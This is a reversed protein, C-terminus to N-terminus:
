GEGFELAVIKIRSKEGRIIRVRSLTLGFRAALAAIVEKNAEGKEPPSLVHVKFNNEALEEIKAKKSSPHVRVTVIRRRAGIKDEKKKM